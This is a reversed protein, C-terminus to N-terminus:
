FRYTRGNMEVMEGYAALLEGFYKKVSNMKNM